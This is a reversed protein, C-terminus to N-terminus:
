SQYKIAAIRLITSGLKILDGEKLAHAKSIREDNVFTGNKSNLDCIMPVHALGNEKPLIIKAHERSVLDDNELLLHAESARGILVSDDLRLDLKDNKRTGSIIIISIVARGPEGLLAMKKEAYNILIDFMIDNWKGEDYAYKGESVDERLLSSKRLFITDDLNILEKREESKSYKFIFEKYINAAAAKRGANELYRCFRFYARVSIKTGLEIQSRYGEDSRAPADQGGFDGDVMCENLMRVALTEDKKIAAVRFADWQRDIQYFKIALDLFGVREFMKGLLEKETISRNYEEGISDLLFTCTEKVSQYDSKKHYVWALENSAEIMVCEMDKIGARKTLEERSLKNVDRDKFIARRSCIEKHAFNIIAKFVKIAEDYRQAESYFIGLLQGVYISRPEVALLRNLLYSIAKISKDDLMNKYILFRVIRLNLDAESLGKDKAYENIFKNAEDSRNLSFLKVWNEIEQDLQFGLFAIMERDKKESQLAKDADKGLLNYLTYILEDLTPRNDPHKDLCRMILDNVKSNISKIYNIPPNPMIAAHYHLFEASEKVKFIYQGTIIEYIICGISYVDSQINLSKGSCQEPSMYPPTGCIRGIKTMYYRAKASDCSAVSDLFADSTHQYCQAIGFDSIKASYESMLINEPKLDRHVFNYGLEQMRLSAYKLGKVIDLWITFYDKEKLQKSRIHEALNYKCCELQIFPKEDIFDVSLAKVINVHNGIKIWTEAESYFADRMSKNDYRDKYTKLAVPGYRPSHCIYVLGMGGEKIEKVSLSDNTWKIKTGVSIEKSM